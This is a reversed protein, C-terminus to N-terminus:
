YFGAEVRDLHEDVARFLLTNGDQSYRSLREEAAPIATVFARVAAADIEPVSLGYGEYALYRANMIQEFQGSLPVALMPKGLYVCEGMLTFGATAIVGRASALDEIFREEGFPRYCLNGEVEDERIERRLGYVRCELGCRQLADILAGHAGATQYVLLHDGRSAKAALIEPRLIPPYLSTRDKRVPPFFFTTIFYHEAWPNRAKIFAKTMEFSVRQGELIEPPHTCRAIIHMNDICFTPLRHTEGFMHTWSEFDSIVADPEMEELLDFYAAIQKPLAVTGELANLLLTKGLRIRNEETIMFMGHIPNVDGVRETRGFRATLYDVARQSAMISVRHGEAILHEIVVRSRMAHGMGEGVVGYVINM